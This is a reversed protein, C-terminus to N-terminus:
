HTKKFSIKMYDVLIMHPVTLAALGIFTIKLLDSSINKNEGVYYAASFFLIFTLISYIATERIAQNKEKKSLSRLVNIM